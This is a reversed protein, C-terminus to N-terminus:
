VSLLAIGAIAVAAGAFARLGHPVGLVFREIPLAFVPSTALLATTVGTSRGGALALQSLWIGGYTGIFAAGAIKALMRDRALEARWHSAEGRGAAVVGLSLSAVLVRATAALLPDIGHRTAGRALMAGAAQMLAAFLGLAVGRGVRGGGGGAANTTVVAIVGLGTLAMGLAERAGVREGFVAVGGLTAFLPATGGLLIARGVGIERIAAFYATDGITLGALASAAILAWAAADPSSPAAGGVVRLAVWTGGLMLTATACKAFNLASPGVRKGFHGFLLSGVTWSAAAALAFLPSADM